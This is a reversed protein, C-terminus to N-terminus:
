GAVLKSESEETPIKQKLGIHWAAKNMATWLIVKKM